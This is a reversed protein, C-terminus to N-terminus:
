WVKKGGYRTRLTHLLRNYESLRKRELVGDILSGRYRRDLLFSFLLTFFLSMHPSSVDRATYQRAYRVTTGFAPDLDMGDLISDSIGFPGVDELHNAAWMAQWDKKNLNSYTRKAPQL